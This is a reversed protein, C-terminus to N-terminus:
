EERIASKRFRAPSVGECNKFWRGFFSPNPFGLMYTIQKVTLSPDALLNKAEALAAKTILELPTMGSRSKILTSFYRPSLCQQRAYFQVERHQRVNEKISFLFNLLVTDSRDSGPRVEHAKKKYIEAIEYCLAKWLTFLPLSEHGEETVLRKKIIVSIDRIREVEDDDLHTYPHSLISMSEAADVTRSAIELINEIDAVGIMGTIDPTYDRIYVTSKVPYIIIDNPRMVYFRDHDGITVSGRTCIFFGSKPLPWFDGIGAIDESTVEKLGWAPLNELSYKDTKDLKVEM